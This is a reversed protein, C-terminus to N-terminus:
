WMIGKGGAGGGGGGFGGGTIWVLEGMKPFCFGRAVFIAECDFPEGAADNALGGEHFPYRWRPLRQPRCLRKADADVM